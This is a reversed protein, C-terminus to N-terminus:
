REGKGTLPNRGLQRYVYAGDQQRERLAVLHRTRVMREMEEEVADM